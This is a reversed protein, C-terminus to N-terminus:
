NIEAKYGYYDITHFASTAHDACNVATIFSTQQYFM